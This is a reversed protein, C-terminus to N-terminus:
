ALETNRWKCVMGIIPQRLPSPSIFDYSSTSVADGEQHLHGRPPTDARTKKKENPSKFCFRDEVVRFQTAKETDIM